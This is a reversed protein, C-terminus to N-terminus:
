PYNFIEEIKKEQQIWCSIFFGTSINKEKLKLLIEGGTVWYSFALKEQEVVPFFDELKLLFFISTWCSFLIRLLSYNPSILGCALELMSMPYM